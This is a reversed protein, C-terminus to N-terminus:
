LGGDSRIEEELYLKEQALKDKLEAIENYALANEIAIAVQGAVRVLFDVDEPSFSNEVRSALTLVGLTRNRSILPLVVALSSPKQM